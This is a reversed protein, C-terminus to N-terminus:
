VMCCIQGTGGYSCFDIHMSVAFNNKKNWNENEYVTKDCFSINLLCCLIGMYEITRVIKICNEM